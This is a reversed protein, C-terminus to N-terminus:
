LRELVVNHQTGVPDVNDRLTALHQDTEWQERTFRGTFLEDAVFTPVWDPIPWGDRLCLSHVTAAIYALTPDGSPGQIPKSLMFHRHHPSANWDKVFQALAQWEYRMNHAEWNRVLHPIKDVTRDFMLKPRECLVRAESGDDDLPCCDPQSADSYPPMYRM